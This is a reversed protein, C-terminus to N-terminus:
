TTVIRMNQNIDIPSGKLDGKTYSTMKEEGENNLQEENFNRM